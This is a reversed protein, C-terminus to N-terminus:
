FKDIILALSVAIHPRFAKPRRPHYMSSSPWTAHTTFPIYIGDKGSNLLVEVRTKEKKERLTKAM